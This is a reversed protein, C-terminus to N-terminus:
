RKFFDAIRGNGWCLVGVTCTISRLRSVVIIILSINVRFDYYMDKINDKGGEVVISVISVSSRGLSPEDIERARFIVQIVINKM